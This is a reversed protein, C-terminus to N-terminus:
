RGAVRSRSPMTVDELAAFVHALGDDDSAETLDRAGIAIRLAGFRGIDVPQGPLVGMTALREYLPRLEAV